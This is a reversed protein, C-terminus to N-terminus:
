VVSTFDAKVVGLPNSVFYCVSEFGYIGYALTNNGGVIVPTPNVVIARQASDVDAGMQQAIDANILRRIFKIPKGEAIRSNKAVLIAHNTNMIKAETEATVNAVQGFIKIIEIGAEALMQRISMRYNLTSAQAKDFNDIAQKVASGCMLVYKDGYDEVTHVMSMIADYLDEGSSPDDRVVDQGPKLTSNDAEILDILTKLETKDMGRSISGKRRALKKTDPSNLIDNVLVYELKSDLGTFSLETDGLPSRKKIIITGNVTDAQLIVDPDTDLASYRWVHEGAEATDIDAVQAIEYPVSLVTNIPEGVLKSIELIPDKM